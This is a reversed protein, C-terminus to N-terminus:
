MGGVMSLMMEFLEANAQASEIRIKDFETPQPPLPTPDHTDIIQQVLDMDIGAAFDIDAGIQSDGVIAEISKLVIGKEILEDHLKNRLVNEIKM